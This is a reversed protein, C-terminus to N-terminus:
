VIQNEAGGGVFGQQHHAPQGIKQNKEHEDVAVNGKMNEHQSHGTYPAKEQVAEATNDKYEKEIIEVIYKGGKKEGQHIYQKKNKQQWNFPPNEWIQQGLIFEEPVFVNTQVYGAQRKGYKKGM